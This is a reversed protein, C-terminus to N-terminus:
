GMEVQFTTVLPGSTYDVVRSTLGFENLTAQLRAMTEEIEERSSASSASNPNSSLMSFPPLEYASDEEGPRAPVVPTPQAPKRKRKAPTRTSGGKKEASEAPQRLRPTLLFDPIVLEEEERTPVPASFVDEDELESFLADQREIVESAPLSTEVDIQPHRRTLLRTAAADVEQMLEADHSRTLVSTTRSGLYTTAPEGSKTATARPNREVAPASLAAIQAERAARRQAKRESALQARAERREDRVERYAGAALSAKGRFERVAGSISFGCIVIGAVITGILIAVGVWRGVSKLLAWAVGGGVYGGLRGVSAPAIVIEPTSEAGPANLSVLSLISVIILTLGLAIRGSLLDEGDIFFTLAFVFLAIPFLFSGAGFCMTLFYGTAQTVPASSPAALSIVMAIAVVAIVLGVIDGIASGKISPLPQPQPAAHQQTSRSKRAASQRKNAGSTGSKRNSAM